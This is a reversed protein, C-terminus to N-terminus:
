TMLSRDLYAQMNYPSWQKYFSIIQKILLLLLLPCFGVGADMLVFKRASVLRGKGMIFEEAFLSM